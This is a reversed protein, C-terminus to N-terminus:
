DRSKMITQLDMKMSHSCKTMKTTEMYETQRINVESESQFDRNRVKDGKKPKQSIMMQYISEILHADEHDPTKTHEMVQKILNARKLVNQFKVDELQLQQKIKEEQLASTFIEILIHEDASSFNQKDHM